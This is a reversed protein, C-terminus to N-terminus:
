SSGHHVGWSGQGGDGSSSAGIGKEKLLHPWFDHPYNTLHLDWFIMSEKEEDTEFQGFEPIADDKWEDLRKGDKWM